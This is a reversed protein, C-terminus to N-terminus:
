RAAVPCGASTKSRAYRVRWSMGMFEPATAAGTLPPQLEARERMGKRAAQVAMRASHGNEVVAPLM